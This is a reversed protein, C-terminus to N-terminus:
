KWRWNPQIVVKTVNGSWSVENKGTEFRPFLHKDFDPPSYSVGVGDLIEMVESDITVSDTLNQLSYENGNVSLTVNGTGFVKIQPLSYVNGKNLITTPKSIEVINDVNNVDYSFPFAEFTIQFSHFHSLMEKVSIQNYVNARYVKRPETCLILDGSGDLWDCIGDINAGEKVKCSITLTIPDYSDGDAYLVGDRGPIEIQEMRREARVREPMSAILINFDKSSKGKFYFYRDILNIM